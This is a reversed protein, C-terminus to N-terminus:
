FMGPYLTQKSKRNNNGIRSLSMKAKTEESHRAGTRAASMRARTEASFPKMKKGLKALSMKKKSEESHKKGVWYKHGKMFESTRKSVSPPRPVGKRSESLRIKFEESRKKGRGSDGIKKKTEKSLKKGLNKDRLIKKASEPFVGGNNGEGGDTMNYGNPSRSGLLKIYYKELEFLDEGEKANHISEITFNDEGYKNIARTIHSVYGPRSIKHKAFRKNLPQVTKGVYIKGNLLNTIKYIFM